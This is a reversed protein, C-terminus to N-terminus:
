NSPQTKFGHWNVGNSHKLKQSLCPPSTVSASYWQKSPQTKCGGTQKSRQQAKAQSVFMTPVRQTVSASYWKYKNQLGHKSHVLRLKSRQDAKAQSAFMTPVRWATHTSYWKHHESLSFRIPHHAASFRENLFHTPIDLLFCRWVMLMLSIVLDMPVCVCVCVCVALM